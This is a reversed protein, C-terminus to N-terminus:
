IMQGDSAVRDGVHATKPQMLATLAEVLPGEVGGVHRQVELHRYFLQVQKELLHMPRRNLDGELGQLFRVGGSRHVGLRLRENWCVRGALLNDSFHTRAPHRLYLIATLYELLAEARPQDAGSWILHVSIVTQVAAM